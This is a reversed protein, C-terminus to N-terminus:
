RTRWLKRWSIAVLFSINLLLGAIGVEPGYIAPRAIGLAGAFGGIGFLIYTGANWLAHSVSTVLISHSTARMLGWILGIVAINVIFLAAQWPPLTFGKALTVLSVHWLAFAASTVILLSSESLGANELSAWLWGRFFGEETILGILVSQTFLLAFNIATTRWHSHEFNTAHAALAIATATGLVILPYAIALAYDNRRGRVFGMSAPSQRRLLWCLLLVPFLALASYLTLGSADM